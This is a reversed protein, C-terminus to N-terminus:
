KRDQNQFSLQLMLKCINQHLEKNSDPNKFSGVLLQLAGSKMVYDHNQQKENSLKYMLHSAATEIM